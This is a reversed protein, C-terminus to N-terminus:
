SFGYHHIDYHRRVKARPVVENGYPDILACKVEFTTVKPALLATRALRCGRRAESVWREVDLDADSDRLLSPIEQIWIKASAAHLSAYLDIKMLDPVAGVDVAGLLKPALAALLATNAAL